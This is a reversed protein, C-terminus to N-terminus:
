VERLGLDESEYYSEQQKSRSSASHSTLETRRRDIWKKFDKHISTPTIEKAERIVEDKEIKSLASLCLELDPRVNQPFKSVMEDACIEAIKENFGQRMLTLRIARKSVEKLEHMYWTLGDILSNAQEGGRAYRGAMSILSVLYEKTLGSSTLYLSLKEFDERKEKLLHDVGSEYGKPPRGARGKKMGWMFPPRGHKKRPPKLGDYAFNRLHRRLSRKHEPPVQALFCIDKFTLPTNTWHELEPTKARM